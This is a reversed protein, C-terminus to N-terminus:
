RRALKRDIAAAAGRLALADDTVLATPVSTLWAQYTANEEFRRRFGSAALFDAFRPLIGGALFVGGQAYFTLALASAAGGLFSCFVDLTQHCLPDQARVAAEVITAPDDQEPVGGWIEAMAGYLRVLGPGCLVTEWCVELNHSALVSLVERELASGPALAAHGAESRMAHWGAATPLSAAVGFGSGPGLALRVGQSEPRAAVPASVREIFQLGEVFPLGWAVAEFDNLLLTPCSLEAAVDSTNLTLSANTMDVRDGTVPGAASLCAGNLPPTGLASFGAHVLALGDDYDATSLMVRKTLLGNDALAFRANTAGIDAVMRM